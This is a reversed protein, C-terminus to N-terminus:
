IYESFEIIVTKLASTVSRTISAIGRKSLLTHKGNIKLRVTYIFLYVQPKKKQKNTKKM